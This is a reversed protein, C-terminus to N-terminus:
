TPPPWGGAPKDAFQTFGASFSFTFQGEIGADSRIALIRRRAAAYDESPLWLPHWGDGLLAARRM